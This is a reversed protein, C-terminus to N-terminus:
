RLFVCSVDDESSFIDGIGKLEFFSVIRFLIDVQNIGNHIWRRVTRVDYGIYEAFKEQTIERNKLEKKLFRGAQAPRDIFVNTMIIVGKM